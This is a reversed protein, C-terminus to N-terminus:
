ISSSIRDLVFRVVSGTPSSMMFIVDIVTATIREEPKNEASSPVILFM